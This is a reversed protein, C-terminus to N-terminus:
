EVFRFLSGQEDGMRRRYEDRSLTVCPSIRWGSEIQIKKAAKQQATPDAFVGFVSSGSGALLAATAGAQLLTDRARRIEPEIDFIVSEFDNTLKDHATSPLSDGFNVLSSSNSLITEPKVTTLAPANLAAYADATSM